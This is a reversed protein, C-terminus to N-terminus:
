GIIDDEFMSSFKESNKLDEDLNKEPSQYQEFLRDLEDEAMDSTDIGYNEYLRKIKKLTAEYKPSRKQKVKKKSM